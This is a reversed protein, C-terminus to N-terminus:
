KLWETRLSQYNLELWQLAIISAGNEIVGDSVLKYAQERSMVHVKIDEGEYDLGHIGSAQSSDVEGVYVDLKESCGGASPYYSTVTKIRGIEVGAEEIAERRVVEIASEDRDIIGAVIELQWPRKDELAGVRIQEIIVVQDRAVDYPLLAAAHGREFLEREIPESWGGNFLKHKFRYKVMRFFGQFLTEKSVIELDQRTFESLPKDTQSM